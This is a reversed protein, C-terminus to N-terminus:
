NSGKSVRMQFADSKVIEFVLSSFKYDKAAVARTIKDIVPRDTFDTGRGLAYTLLKETLCRTFQERQSRLIAKLEQPGQFKQGGPLEGSADIPEGGDKDRWAGIADFNEFGFGLPDMKQHCSACLPKSRHQEMRQRLTGTLKQNKDDPLLGADPAPPPPPTGLLTELIWKGRKVPSTRTPNSTLTLISAQTLLGGRPVGTLKVRRFESGQVNPIGYHNALRENVFTFDADLFDLLSRDERLIAEFFLETERQMAARLEENFNPFRAPDPQLSKLNRLQLWQGAFNEVLAWSKGDKLMRRVQAELNKRLTGQQAHYFLEDDPMSSWLFYSLRSALEFENIRYPTQPKIGEPDREVRFLFHPSVLVAELALQIGREWSEGQSEALQVLGILKNVEERTVPRRYARRAFNELIKFACEERARRTPQCIMIRRHSEPLSPPPVDLPGEVELWEVLLNRDRNKPDPTNPAYYDNTFFVGFRHDGARVKVFAEYVRPDNEPNKVDQPKLVQNDLAWAMKVPERGAQQGCARVRLVYEGSIPFHHAVFLAGNSNLARMTGVLPAEKLTTQLERASYRKAPHRAAPGTVVAKNIIQEAAALYKEMLLPPLALVDGINDFGYGVDDAPFDETAQFDIGVLDRITNRYEARNLRRLTVRGPNPRAYLSALVVNNIWATLQEKEAMSLPRRTRPPMEGSQVQQLVKDWTRADRLASAEDQYSELNLGAEQKNSGHCSTCHKKLLPVIVTQYDPKLDAALSPTAASLRCLAVIALLTASRIM